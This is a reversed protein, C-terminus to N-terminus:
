ILRAIAPSFHAFWISQRQTLCTNEKGREMKEMGEGCGERSILAGCLMAPSGLHGLEARESALIHVQVHLNTGLPVRSAM